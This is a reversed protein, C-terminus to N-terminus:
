RCCLDWDIIQEAFLYMRASTRGSIVVGITLMGATATAGLLIVSVPTRTLEITKGCPDSHLSRGRRLPLTFPPGFPPGNVGGRHRVLASFPPTAGEVM